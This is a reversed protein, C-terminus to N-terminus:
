GLCAALLDGKGRQKDEEPEAEQDHGADAGASGCDLRGFLAEAVGLVSEPCIGEERKSRAQTAASERMMATTAVAGLIVKSGQCNLLAVTQKATSDGKRIENLKM